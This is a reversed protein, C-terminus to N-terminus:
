IHILSLDPRRECVKGTANDYSLISCENFVCWRRDFWDAIKKDSLRKNLLDSMKEATIHDDYLIGEYELQKLANAIDDTTRITSFLKHLINGTKIYNDDDKNDENNAIFDLSKNSQRFKVPVDSTKIEIRQQQIRTLFVNESVSEKVTKM